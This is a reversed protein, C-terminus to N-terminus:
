NLLVLIFTLTGAAKPPFRNNHNKESKSTTVATRSGILSFHLNKNMTGKLSTRMFIELSYNKKQNVVRFIM